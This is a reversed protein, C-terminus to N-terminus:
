AMVAFCTEHDDPDDGFLLGPGGHRRNRDTGPHGWSLEAGPLGWERRERAGEERGAAKGLKLEWGAGGAAGELFYRPPHGM